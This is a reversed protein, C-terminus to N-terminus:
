LDPSKEEVVYPKRNRAEDYTRWVYEGIIGLMLLILGGLILLVIMIPAWGKPNENHFLRVWVVVLAYLFGLTASIIGMLSSMRIPWYSTNLAGDIFYKIKKRLTWQSKGNVRAKRHYPIFVIHYGLWLIDGQVFRNREDIQNLEDVAVRDLMIFDFGGKPMRPNSIRILGYFFRSTLKSFWTDDRDTRTAIVIKNGNEWNEVMQVILEPPDQLDASMIVVADGKAERLGAIIAPIQGFNRTFSMYRINQKEQYLRKIEELSGDTSGDNVFIIEYQHRNLPGAFLDSLAAQTRSIDKSNQYVPIIISIKM